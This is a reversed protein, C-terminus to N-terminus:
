WMNKSKKGSKLEMRKIEVRFNKNQEKMDEKVDAFFM